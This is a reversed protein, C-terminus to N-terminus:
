EVVFLWEKSLEHDGNIVKEYEGKLL